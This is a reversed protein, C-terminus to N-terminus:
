NTLIIVAITELNTRRTVVINPLPKTLKLSPIRGTENDTVGELGGLRELKLLHEVEAELVLLDDVFPELKVLVFDSVELGHALLQLSYDVRELAIWEIITLLIFFSHCNVLPQENKNGVIRQM